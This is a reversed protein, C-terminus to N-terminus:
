SLKANDVDVRWSVVLEDVEVKPGATEVLVRSVM